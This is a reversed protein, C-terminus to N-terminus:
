QSGSNAVLVEKAILDSIKNAGHLRRVVEEFIVWGGEEVQQRIMRIFTRGDFKDGSELSTNLLRGTLISTWYPARSALATFELALSAYLIHPAAREITHVIGYMEHLLDENDELQTILGRILVLSLDHPRLSQLTANLGETDDNTLAEEVLRLTCDPDEM